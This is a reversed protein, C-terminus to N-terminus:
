LAGARGLRAQIAPARAPITLWLEGAIPTCRRAATHSVGLVLALHLPGPAGSPQFPAPRRANERIRGDRQTTLDTEPRYQARDPRVNAFSILNQPALCPALLPLYQAAGPWTWGSGTCSFAVDPSM